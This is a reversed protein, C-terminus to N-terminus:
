VAQKFGIKTSVWRKEEGKEHTHLKIIGIGRTTWNIFYKISSYKKIKGYQTNLSKKQYFAGM